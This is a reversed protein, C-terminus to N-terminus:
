KKQRQMAERVIAYVRKVDAIRFFQAGWSARSWPGYWCYSSLPQDGFTITGSGDGHEELKLGSLSSLDISQVSRRFVGSAIIARRDTFGYILRSRYLWDTLYRGALFYIGTGIFLLAALGGIPQPTKM